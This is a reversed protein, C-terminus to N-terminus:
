YYYIIQLLFFCISSLQQTDLDFYYIGLYIYLYIFLQPESLMFSMIRFSFM